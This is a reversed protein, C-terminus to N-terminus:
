DCRRPRKTWRRGARSCPSRAGAPQPSSSPSRTTCRTPGSRHVRIPCTCRATCSVTTSTTSRAASTSRTSRPRTSAWGPPSRARSPPARSSRPATRGCVRPWCRASTSRRSRSAPHRRRAASSRSTARTPASRPTSRRSRARRWRNHACAGSSRARSTPTWGACRPSRRMSDSACPSSRVQVSDPLPHPAPQRHPGLVDRLLQAGEAIGGVIAPDDLIRRVTGAVTTLRGPALQVGVTDSMIDELQHAEDFVVVDHEPLIVGGAAVDLGYLHLNVVVVDATQARARAGEAFCPQGLPCRTAGPCEDSGVTVARVAADTPSWDLDALDGSRTTGAWEALRKIEVRTTGAMEELELQGDGAQALERLRQLCVCNSRGKLVAWEFPVGLHQELFPLDKSALQDQLAKTATAVVTRKGAVLAPVLYGLTKGTGTGAACILHRGTDISRAVAEAMQAQGPRDESATLARTVRELARRAQDVSM